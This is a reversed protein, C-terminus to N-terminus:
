DCQKGAGETQTEYSRPRLVVSLFDDFLADLDLERNLRRTTALAVSNIAPCSATKRKLIRSVAVFVGSDPM